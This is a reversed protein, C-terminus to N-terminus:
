LIPHDTHTCFYIEFHPKPSQSLPFNFTANTLIHVKEETRIADDKKEQQEITDISNRSPASAFRPFHTHEFYKPVIMESPFNQRGSKTNRFNHHFLFSPEQLFGHSCLILSPLLFIAATFMEIPNTIMILRQKDTLVNQASQKLRERSLITSAIFPISKRIECSYTLFASIRGYISKLALCM